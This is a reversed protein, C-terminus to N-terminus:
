NSSIDSRGAIRIMKGDKDFVITVGKASTSIVSAESHVWRAATRGDAATRVSSPKGLKEKAEEYTTVGPQLSDVDVMSFDKGVSACGCVLAVAAILSMARM